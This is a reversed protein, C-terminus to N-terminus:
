SEVLTQHNIVLSGEIKTSCKRRVLNKGRGWRNKLRVINLMLTCWGHGVSHHLHELRAIPHRSGHCRLMSTTNRYRPSSLYMASLFTGPSPSVLLYCSLDLLQISATIQVFVNCILIYWSHCLVRLSLWCFKFLPFLTFRSPNWTLSPGSYHWSALSVSMRFWHPVSRVPFTPM